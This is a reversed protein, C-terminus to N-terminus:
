KLGRNAMTANLLSLYKKYQMDNLISRMLKVNENVANALMKKRTEDNTETMVCMTQNDLLSMVTTVAEAQDNNTDLTKNLAKTNVTVHFANANMEEANAASNMEGANATFIMSLMMVICMIMKKM